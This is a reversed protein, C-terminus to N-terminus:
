LYNLIGTALVLKETPCTEVQLGVTDAFSM